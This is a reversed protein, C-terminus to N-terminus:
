IHHDATRTQLSAIRHNGPVWTKLFEEIGKFGAKRGAACTEEHGDSCLDPTIFSYNPTNSELALDNELHKELNVVHEACKEREGTISEFYVFPDHRTAYADLKGSEYEDPEKAGDPKNLEPHACTEGGDRPPDLGMSQDYSRWTLGAGELQKPLTPVNSPYVCGSSPEQGQVLPVEAIATFTPCDGRTEPNPAQGSITAIYNDLSNHGVGYYNPLFAGKKVLEDALYPVESGLGFSTSEDENELVIVWVHEIPGPASAAATSTFTAGLSGLAAVACAMLGLWRVRARLLGRLGCRNSSAESM